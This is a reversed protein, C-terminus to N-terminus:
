SLVCGMANLSRPTHSERDTLALGQMAALARADPRYRGIAPAEAGPLRFLRDMCRVLRDCTSRVVLEDAPAGVSRLVAQVDAWTPEGVPVWSYMTSGV